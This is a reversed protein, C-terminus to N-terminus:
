LGIMTICDDVKGEFLKALVVQISDAMKHDPKCPAIECMGFVIHLYNIQIHKDIFLIWNFKFM